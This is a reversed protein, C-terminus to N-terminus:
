KSDIVDQLESIKNKLAEIASTENRFVIRQGLTIIHVFLEKSELEKKADIFSLYEDYSITVFPKAGGITPNKESRIM